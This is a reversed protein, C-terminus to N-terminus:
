KTQALAHFAHHHKCIFLIQLRCRAHLIIICVRRYRMSQALKSDLPILGLRHSVFEDPLVSTNNEIEVLEIAVTPVEAIMVRRVANAVSADVNKIRFKCVDKTLDLIEVQQSLDM